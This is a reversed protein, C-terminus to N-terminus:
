ILDHIKNIIWEHKTNELKKLLGLAPILAIMKKFQVEDRILIKRGRSIPFQVDEIKGYISGYIITLKNTLNGVHDIYKRVSTYLASPRWVVDHSEIYSVKLKFDIWAKGPIVYDPKVAKQYCDDTPKAIFYNRSSGSPFLIGFAQKMYYDFETTPNM